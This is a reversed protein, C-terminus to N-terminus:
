PFENSDLVQKTTRSCTHLMQEPIYFVCGDTGQCSLNRKKKVCFFKLM